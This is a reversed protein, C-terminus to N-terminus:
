IKSKRRNVALVGLVLVAAPVGALLMLDVDGGNDPKDQTGQNPDQTQGQNQDSESNPLTISGKTATNDTIGTGYCFIDDLIVDEGDQRVEVDNVGSFYLCARSTDYTALDAATLGGEQGWMDRLSNVPFLVYGKFGVPLVCDGNGGIAGQTVENNQVIYYPENPKGGFFKGNVMMHGVIGFDQRTNNEVYIGIGALGADLNAGEVSPTSNTLIQLNGLWGGSYSIYFANNKYQCELYLDSAPWQVWKEGGDKLDEFGDIIGSDPGSFDEIVWISMTDDTWPTPLEAAAAPVAAICLALVAALMLCVLKKM